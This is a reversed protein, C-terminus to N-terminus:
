PWLGTSKDERSAKFFKASIGGAVKREKFMNFVGIKYEMDSLKLIQLTQTTKKRGETKAAPAHHM